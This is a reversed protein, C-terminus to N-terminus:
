LWTHINKDRGESTHSFKQQKSCPDVQWHMSSMCKAKFLRMGYIQLHLTRLWSLQQNRHRTKIAITVVVLNFTEKLTQLKPLKVVCSKNDAAQLSSMVPPSSEVSCYRAAQPPQAVTQKDHKQQRNAWWCRTKVSVTTWLLSDCASRGATSKTHSDEYDEPFAQLNRTLGCLSACCHPHLSCSREKQPVEKHAQIYRSWFTCARVTRFHWLTGLSSRIKLEPCLTTLKSRVWVRPRVIVGFEFCLIDM